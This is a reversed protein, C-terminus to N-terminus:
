ESFDNISIDELFMREYFQNYMDNEEYQALRAIIKCNDREDKRWLYRLEDVICYLEFLLKRFEDIDNQLIMKSIGKKASSIRRNIMQEDRIIINGSKVEREVYDLRDKIADIAVALEDNLEIKINNKELYRLTIGFCKENYFPHYHSWIDSPAMACIIEEFEDMTDVYVYHQIRIANKYDKIHNFSEIAFALVISSFLSNRLEWVTEFYSKDMGNTTNDVRTTLGAFVAWLLIIMMYFIFDNKTFIVNIRRWNRFIQLKFKILEIAVKDNLNCVRRQGKYKVKLMNTEKVKNKSYDRDGFINVYISAYFYPFPFKLM